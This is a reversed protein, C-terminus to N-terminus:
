TSPSASRSRSPAARGGAAREGTWSARPARRARSSRASCRRRRAAGRAGGGRLHRRRARALAARQDRPLPGARRRRAPLRHPRPRPHRARPLRPRVDAPHARGAHAEAQRAGAGLRVRRAQDQARLRLHRLPARRRRGRRRRVGGAALVGGREQPPRRWSRSPSTAGSSSSRSWCAPRTARSRRPSWRTSGRAPGRGGLGPHHGELQGRLEAERHRPLPARESPAPRPGGSVALAAHARRAAGAGAQHAAQRPHPRPCLRGLRHLADGARRLARPLVGRSLPRAAGRRHQLDLDPGFAELRAVTRSAPGSVEIREVRHGLREIAGALADVTERTDFEAEDEADSLRLNHTLAIRM